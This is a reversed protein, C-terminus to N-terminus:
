ALFPVVFLLASVLAVAQMLWRRRSARHMSRAAAGFTLSLIGAAGALIFVSTRATPDDVASTYMGGLYLLTAAALATGAVVGNGWVLPRQGRFSPSAPATAAGPDRVVVTGAIFDHLARRRRNFLVSVIESALWAWYLYEAGAAWWPRIEDYRAQTAAYDLAAFEAASIQQLVAIYAIISLTGLAIDVASRRTARRWGIRAGGTDVVRIRAIRKGITQGFLAHGLVAYVFYVAYNATYVIAAETRGADLGWLTLPLMPLFIIIDIVGARLRDWFTAYTLDM